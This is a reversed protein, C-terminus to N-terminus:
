YTWSTPGERGGEQSRKRMGLCAPNGQRCVSGMAPSPASFPSPAPPSPFAPLLFPAKLLGQPPLRPVWRACSNSCHCRRQRRLENPAQFFCSSFFWSWAGVPPAPLLFLPPPPPRPLISSLFPLSVCSPPLPLAWLLFSCTLGETSLM